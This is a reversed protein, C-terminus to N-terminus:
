SAGQRIALKLTKDAGVVPTTTGAQMIRISAANKLEAYTPEDDWGVVLDYRGNAITRREHAVGVAVSVNRIDTALNNFLTNISGDMSCGAHGPSSRERGRKSSLSHFPRDVLSVALKMVLRATITGAVTGCGDWKAHKGAVGWRDRVAVVTGDVIAPREQL